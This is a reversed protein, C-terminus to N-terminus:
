PIKDMFLTGLTYKVQIKSSSRKLTLSDLIGKHNGMANIKAIGLYLSYSIRFILFVRCSQQAQATDADKCLQM